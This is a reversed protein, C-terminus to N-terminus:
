LHPGIPRFVGVPLLPSTLLLRRRSRCWVGMLMNYGIKQYLENLPDGRKWVEDKLTEISKFVNKLTYVQWGLAAEDFLQHHRVPRLKAKM